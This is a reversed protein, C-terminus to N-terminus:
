YDQPGYKFEQLKLGQNKQRPFTFFARLKTRYLFSKKKFSIKFKKKKSVNTSIQLSQSIVSFKFKSKILNKVVRHVLGLLEQSFPVDECNSKLKQEFADRIHIAM